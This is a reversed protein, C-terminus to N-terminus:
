PQRCTGTSTETMPALALAVRGLDLLDQDGPRHGSSWSM